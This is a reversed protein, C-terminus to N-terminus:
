ALWEEMTRTRKERNCPGCLVQLNAPDHRGGRSYPLIHDIEPEDPSACVQCCGGDRELILARLAPPIPRRRGIISPGPRVNVVFSRRRVRDFRGTQADEVMGLLLAGLEAPDMVVYEARTLLEVADIGFSAHPFAPAKSM